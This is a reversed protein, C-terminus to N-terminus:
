PYLTSVIFYVGICFVTGIAVLLFAAIQRWYKVMGVACMMMTVVIAIATESM